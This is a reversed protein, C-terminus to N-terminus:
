ASISETLRRPAYRDVVSAAFVIWYIDLHSRHSTHAWFVFTVAMFALFLLGILATGPRRWALAMGLLGLLAIPVYGVAYAAQALPARDPNLRWSFGAALKRMGAQVVWWPNAQMFRLARQMFWDRTAIANGALQRLEAHEQPALAARAVEASRDISKAPYRSFTAPNNGVWLVYGTDTSLVPTGTVHATYALWPLVCALLTLTALAAARLRQRMTAAGWILIWLLAACAAPMMAVRALVMSGLALGALLWDMRGNRASARLLLWVALATCFTVVATDQLATDHVVYYPYFATMACALVGTVTNFMRRGILFAVFATGAGLLAQPVIILLYHKGGFTTLALLAPYLPPRSCQTGMCFGGGAAVREAVHYFLFYSNKWFYTEGFALRVGLRAVFAAALVAGVIFVVRRRALIEASM